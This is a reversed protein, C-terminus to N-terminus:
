KQKDQFLHEDLIRRILEATPIGLIKAEKKLKEKQRETLYIQNRIMTIRAMKNEEVNVIHINDIFDKLLNLFINLEFLLYNIRFVNFHIQIYLNSYLM